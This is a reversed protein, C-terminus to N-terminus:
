AKAGTNLRNLISITEAAGGNASLYYDQLLYTLFAARASMDFSIEKPQAFLKSIMGADIASLAVGELAWFCEGCAIVPKDFFMAELGVSSNVTIVGSSGAVLAFTDTRNDLVVRPNRGLIQDSFSQAATPHEKIKLHWGTPLNDAALLLADIFDPVTKFRGGFLRM